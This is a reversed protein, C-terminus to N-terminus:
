PYCGIAMAAALHILLTTKPELIENHRASDYFDTYAKQQKEPLMTKEKSNKMTEGELAAPHSPRTAV